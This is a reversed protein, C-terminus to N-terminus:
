RMLLHRGDAAINTYRVLYKIMHELNDCDIYDTNKSLELCGRDREGRVISMKSQM